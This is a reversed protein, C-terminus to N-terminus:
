YQPLMVEADCLEMANVMAAVGVKKVPACMCRDDLPAALVVQMVILVVMAHAQQGRVEEARAAGQIGGYVCM